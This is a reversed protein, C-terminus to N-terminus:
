VGGTAACTSHAWFCTTRSARTRPLTAPGGSRPRRARARSPTRADAVLEQGRIRISGRRHKILGMIARLVTTKGAGNPGLLAVAEGEGVHLDLDRVVDYRGYGAHLSSIELVNTSASMPGPVGRARPRERAGGRRARQRRGRGADLVTVEDCLAFVFRPQHEILIVSVGAGKLDALIEAVHEVETPSLGALPEDLIM